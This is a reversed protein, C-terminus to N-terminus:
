ASMEQNNRRRKRNRDKRDNVVPSSAGPQKAGTVTPTLADAPSLPPGPESTAEIRRRVIERGEAFIRQQEDLSRTVCFALLAEVLVNRALKPAAGRSARNMRTVIDDIAETVEWYASGQLGQAVRKRSSIPEKMSDEPSGGAEPQDKKRRAM